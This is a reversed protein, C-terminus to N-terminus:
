STRNLAFSLICHNRVFFIKYKNSMYNCFSSFGCSVELCIPVIGPCKALNCDRFESTPGECDKGGNSAEQLLGRTRNQTGGNCTATCESWAHWPAWKCNGITTQNISHMPVSYTIM